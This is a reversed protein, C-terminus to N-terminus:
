RVQTMAGVQDYAGCGDRCGDMQHGGAGFNWEIPQTRNAGVHDHRGGMYVLKKVKRQILASGPLPSVGDAPSRLLDLLNTPFGVAVIVVTQDGANALATRFVSLADPSDSIDGFASSFNAVLDDVYVGRGGHTWHAEANPWDPQDPAGVKGKYAGVPIHGRGYYRNIVSIAGAGNTAAADHLVALIRAEELDALAHAACLMGVDDVDISMDTDIILDVAAHTLAFVAFLSFRPMGVTRRHNFKGRALTEKHGGHM